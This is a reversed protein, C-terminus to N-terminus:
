HKYFGEKMSEPEELDNYDILIEEDAKIDRIATWRGEIIRTNPNDSHNMYWPMGMRDFREPCMCEDESIYEVYKRFAPPVDKLSCKKNTNEGRFFKTGVSIDHTAFVGIGSVNSPKLIFSFETCANDQTESAFCPLTMIFFSLFLQSILKM